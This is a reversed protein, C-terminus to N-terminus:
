SESNMAHFNRIFQYGYDLLIIAILREPNGRLEHTEYGKIDNEISMRKDMIPYRDFEMLPFEITMSQM